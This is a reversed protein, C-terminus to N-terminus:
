KSFYDSLNITTSINIEPTTWKMSARKKWSPILTIKLRVYPNINISDDTSKWSYNRDINPYPYVKFDKVSISDPFIDLWYNNMDISWAIIASWRLTSTGYIDPDLIWTDIIWDNFWLWWNHDIWRDKWVLKLMQINWICWDSYSNNINTIDCSMVTSPKKTDQKWNWRFYTRKKKDWSILYLEKIDNWSTFVNPWEWLNEDDDDWRINWDWNEDGLDSDRNSNYDIFQFAYQWFRQQSSWILASTTNFSNSFCWNTWMTSTTSRCYYFWTGFTNVPTSNTWINWNHWFNWFWSKEIYNGNLTNFWNIKRNFYEEYDLSGGMKIDEFLKQSFYFTDKTINTSEILKIKWFNLSSLMYFWWIMIISFIVIWMMIEVLTFWNKNTKM